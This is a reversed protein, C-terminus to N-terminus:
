ILTAFRENDISFYFRNCGLNKMIDYCCCCPKSLLISGAKNLRVNVIEWSKRTILLGKGRKWASIESHTKPRGDQIRAAYGFHPEPTRANNTGCALIKNDQVLFSYHIYHAYQPHNHLRAKASRVCEYLLSKKM